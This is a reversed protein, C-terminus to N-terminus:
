RAPVPTGAPRQQRGGPGAPGTPQSPPNPRMGPVPQGGDVVPNRGNTKGSTDQEAPNANPDDPHPQMMLMPNAAAAAAAKEAATPADQESFGLERRAAADSILGQKQAALADASRDPRLAIAAANWWIALTEVNEMGNARLVPWLIERTLTTCVISALPGLHSKVADEEVQWSSNGTWWITSARRALWTGNPTTPCWVSGTHHRIKQHCDAITAVPTGEGEYGPVPTGVEDLDAATFLTDTPELEATTVFERETGRIVPWRHNLTTLSSHGAGELSVMPEDVVDFVNVESVHQWESVGVKHDLTLVLDDVQLQDYRRWGEFTLVETQEDACWHNLDEVGTVVSSPVDLGSAIARYAAERLLPIQEDFPTSFTLHQLKAIAEDSIRLVLPVHAAPSDQDKIATSAAAILGAILPDGHLAAVGGGESMGPNPMMASEPIAIIGAGILRSRIDAMVRRCLGDLEALDTLVAEFRSTSYMCDESDPTYVPIIVIQNAKFSVWGDISRQPHRPLRVRVGNEESVMWERRSAVAWSTGADTGLAGTAEGVAPPTPAIGGAKTMEPPTPYGILWSEGPVLLHIALRFMLDRQGIPGDHLEALIEEALAVTALDATDPDPEQGAAAPDAPQGGAPPKGPAPTGNALPAPAGDPAQRSTGNAAPTGARQQPPVPAAGNAPQPVPLGDATTPPAAGPAAAPPDPTFPNQADAKVKEAAAAEAAAQQEREVRIPIPDGAGDPQVRGVYLHCRSLGNALWEVGQRAAGTNRYYEWAQNQWERPVPTNKALIAPIVPPPATASASLNPPTWDVPPPPSPSLWNVLRESLKAM